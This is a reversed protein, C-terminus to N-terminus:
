FHWRLLLSATDQRTALATSDRVGYKNRWIDVEGGLWLKDDPQGLAHGLDWKIQPVLHLNWAHSGGPAVYDLFGDVLFRQQGIAFARAGSLTLQWTDWDGRHLDKRAYVNAQLYNFGPAALDVGLGLLGSETIQADRGHEYTAAILVDKIPGIALERGSLKGLSLRPSVEGYWSSRHGSGDDQRYHLSDVFWYLDGASWGSAQELTFSTQPSPDLVFDGGYLASLSTDAYLLSNDSTAATAAPSVLM